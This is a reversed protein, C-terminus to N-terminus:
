NALHDCQARRRCCHENTVVVGDASIIFGSGSGVGADIQVVSGQIREILDALSSKSEESLDDGGVFQVNVVPPLEDDPAPTPTDSTPADPLPEQPTLSSKADDSCAMTFVVLVTTIILIWIIYSFVKM